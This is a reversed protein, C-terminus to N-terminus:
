AKGKMMQWERFSKYEGCWDGFSVLPHPFPSPPQTPPYRHCENTHKLYVCRACCEPQGIVHRESM